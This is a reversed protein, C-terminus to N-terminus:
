YVSWNGVDTDAAPTATMHDNPPNEPEPGDGYGSDTIRLESIMGHFNDILSKHRGIIMPASNDEYDMFNTQYNEAPDIGDTIDTDMWLTLFGDVYTFGVYMWQDAPVEAEEISSSGGGLFSAITPPESDEIIYLLSRGVGDADQQQLIMSINRKDPPPPDVIGRWLVIAEVTFTDFITITTFPLDPIYDDFGDMNLAVRDPLGNIDMGHSTAGYLVGGMPNGGSRPGDSAGDEGFDKVETVEVGPSGEEFRWWAFTEGFSIQATCIGAIATLGVKIWDM